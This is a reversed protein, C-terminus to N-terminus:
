GLALAVGTLSVVSPREGTAIGWLLPIVAASVATVPAVISMRGTALGRYLLLIGFAGFVGAIAGLVLDGRIPEGWGVTMVLLGLVVLGLVHSLFTVATVAARRSALGGFFDGAGYAVAVLVGLFVAM